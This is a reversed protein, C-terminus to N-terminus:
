EKDYFYARMKKQRQRKKDKRMIFAPLFGDICVSIDVASDFNIYASMDLCHGDNVM